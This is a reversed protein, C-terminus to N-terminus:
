RRVEFVCTRVDPRFGAAALANEYGSSRVSTGNVTEVSVYARADVARTCFHRYVARLAGPLRRDDPALRIDLERGSRLVVFLLRAEGGTAYCLWTSARRPPLQDEGDGIGLGCPSAPDSANIWFVRDRDGPRGAPYAPSLLERACSPDAFQAGEVGAVFSGGVIEGSLELVRLAPLLDRWRRAPSDREVLARFVVGYREILLRAIAKNRELTHIPADPFARMGESRSAQDSREDADPEVAAAAPGPVRFWTGADPIEPRRGRHQSRRRHQSRGRSQSSRSPSRRGSHFRLEGEERDETPVPEPFGARAANRIVSYTGNSIEGAWVERWLAAAVDEISRAPERSILESFTFRGVPPVPSPTEAATLSHGSDTVGGAPLPRGSDTVGAAPPSSSAEDRSSRGSEVLDLDGRLAFCIRRAGCGLWVIEGEALAADLLAPTYGAVRIPLIEREWLEAPASFLSLQEIVLLLREAPRAPGSANAESDRDAAEATSRPSDVGAEESAPAGAVLQRQAWFRALRGSGAPAGAVMRARRRMLRLIRELNAADCVYGGSGDDLSVERVVRRARELAELAENLQDPSLGFVSRLEDREVPGHFSLWEAILEAASDLPPSAGRGVDGASYDDAHGAVSGGADGGPGGGTGVLAEEVRAREQPPCWLFTSGDCTAVRELNRELRGLLEIGACADFDGGGVRGGKEMEAEVARSLEEWERASLFRREAVWAALTEYSDPVYGAATRTLKADVERCIDLRLAPRVSRDFVVAALEGEDDLGHSGHVGGSRAEGAAAGSGGGCAGSRGAAGAVADDAYMLENTRWWVTSEAFPSAGATECSVLSILGGDLDSLRDALSALDFDEELCIRMAEVAIPFDRSDATMAFLRRSRRRNLWLPMRKGFGRRPLLLARGAAERFRAGFWGTAPLERELLPRVDLAGALRDLTATVDAPELGEPIEVAIVDDDSGVFAQDGAVERWLAAFAIALPKNVQGGWLTHLLALRVRPDGSDRTIELIITECGPLRVGTASRQRGFLRLLEDAAAETCGHERQLAARLREEEGAALAGEASDCLAALRRSLDVSRLMAGARWFPIGFADSEAAVAHVDADGIDTIRWRRGGFTFVDGARREWVFEEDLEGVRGGHEDRLTFYGRDPITGGSHLLALRASERTRLRGDAPDRYLRPSLERVRTDAWRGTLMEVVGDFDGHDLDAYATCCRVGDFLEEAHHPRVACMSTIIQALVDLAPRPASLAEIDGDRAASLAASADLLERSVLPLFTARSEGGVQHGSRGIRQVVSAVSAPVDVLVVEDIDGIDIGLELTSTAVIAALRGAAMRREVALRVERSLSGHHAYVLEGDSERLRDGLDTRERARENLVTALKEAARRGAVFVLTTRSRAVISLIGDALEAYRRGGSDDVAVSADGARQAGGAGSHADARVAGEAYDVRLALKRPDEGVVVRVPRPQYRADASGVLRRGGVFSAIRGAPHVTASVAIRQFEGAAAGAVVEGLREVASMLHIGRRMAGQGGRSGAVAHIEDLIVAAVGSLSERAPGSLLMLNLSEPTTIVIEPPRRILRQREAASTDGTRVGVRIGAAAPELGAIGALPARLNREIDYGLAKLPTVYLVGTKGMPLRSALFSDIAWLFAALTKGSGTPASLVVHEGASIASWAKMQIDTPARYTSAFWRAVPEGFGFGTLDDRREGDTPSM